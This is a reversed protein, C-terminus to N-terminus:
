QCIKTILYHLISATAIVLCLTIILWCVPGIGDTFKAYCRGCWVVIAGHVIYFEYSVSGIYNTLKSKYGGLYLCLIVIFLYITYNPLTGWGPLVDYYKGLLSYTSTLILAIFSVILFSKYNTEIFKRIREEYAAFTMGLPIPYTSAYLSDKKILLCCFVYVFTFLWMAILSKKTASIYRFCCYFAIYNILLAYIFWSKPCPNAIVELMSIENYTVFEMLNWILAVLILPLLLKKLRKRFFGNLYSKGKIKLSYGLGYGSLFFFTAVSFPGWNGFDSFFLIDNEIYVCAHCLFVCIALMGRLPLTEKLDLAYLKGKKKRLVFLFFVCLIIDIYLM